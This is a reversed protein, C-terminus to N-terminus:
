RFLNALRTLFDEDKEESQQGTQKPKKIDPTKLIYQVSQPHNKDPSAFSVAPSDDAAFSQTESSIDRKADEIGDRFEIQGDILEQISGPLKKVSNYLKGIGKSASKIGSLYSGFGDKLAKYGEMVKRGNASLAKVGDDFEHYGAATQQVGSAFNDLGGSASGLSGSLADMNDLTQLTGQALAQVSPDSSSSLSLALSRLDTTSSSLADFGDSIDSIGEAVGASNASLDDLGARVEASGSAIDKTGDIYDELGTQYNEMGSIYDDGGSSIDSIGSKLRGIADALSSAGDKLETTGDVMDNAGTLMDDFGDETENITDKFGALTGKLLTINIGSMEFDHIDAELTYEESKGPLIMYSVNLTNGAAVTSAEESVINGTRQLDFAMTIQAMYGERVREDCKDNIEGSIDMRLRGSAGALQQAQVETNNLYYRFEFIYPIEGQMTGQYYLGGEVESDPFTIKDGSIEPASLTSLNKIDTYEGYDTYEGVLQNVVYINEVSGDYKLAAYVTESKSSSALAPASFVGFSLIVAIIMFITKKVKM